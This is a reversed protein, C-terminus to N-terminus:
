SQKAESELLVQCRMREYKVSSDMLMEFSFLSALVSGVGAFLFAKPVQDRIIDCTMLSKSHCTMGIDEDFGFTRLFFQVGKVATTCVQEDNLIYIRSCGANVFAQVGTMLCIVMSLAFLLLVCAQMLLLLSWFWFHSDSCGRFCAFCGTVCTRFRGSSSSSSSGATDSSTQPGGFYGNAWFGFYTLGSTFLFFFAFYVIWFHMYYKSIMDFLPPAKLGLVLMFSNLTASVVSVEKRASKLNTVVVPLASKLETLTSTLFVSAGSLELSLDKNEETAKKCFDLKGMRCRISDLEAEVYQMSVDTVDQAMLNGFESAKQELKQIGDTSAYKSMLELFNQTKTIMGEVVNAISDLAGSSSASYTFCEQARAFSTATANSALEKAFSLTEPRALQGKGIAAVADPDFGKAAAAVGGLLVKRLTRSANAQYLSLIDAATANRHQSAYQAQANQVVRFAADPLSESSVKFKMTGKELASKGGPAQVIWAVVQKVVRAQDAGLFGEAAWFAPDALLNLAQIVRGSNFSVTKNVLLQGVDMEVLISPDDANMVLEYLIDALFEVPLSEGVLRQSVWTVKQLNKASVIGLYDVVADAVEDRMRALGLRGGVTALKKAYTRLVVAMVGPLSDDHVLKAYEEKNIWAEGDVEYKKILEDAKEGELAPIGYIRAASKLNSGSVRGSNDTDFLAYTHNIMELENEGKFTSMKAMVQDFIKQVRDVTTSFENMTDQVQEGFTAFWEEIQHLVPKLVTMLMSVLESVKAMAKTSVKKILSELTSKFTDVDQTEDFKKLALDTASGTVALMQDMGREIQATVNLCQTLGASVKEMAPNLEHEMAYSIATGVDSWGRASKGLGGLMSSTSLNGVLVMTHCTLAAICLFVTCKPIEKKAM